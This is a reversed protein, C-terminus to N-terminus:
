YSTEDSAQQAEAETFGQRLLEDKVAKARRAESLERRSLRPSRSRIRALQFLVAIALGVVLLVLALAIGIGFSELTDM